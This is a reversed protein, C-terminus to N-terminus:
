PIVCLRSTGNTRGNAILSLQYYGALNTTPILYTADANGINQQWITRGLADTLVLAGTPAGQTRVLIPTGAQALSPSVHWSSADTITVANVADTTKFNRKPSLPTCFFHSNVAQVRWYYNKNQILNTLTFTTDTLWQETVLFGFASSPSTQLIYHTAGEVSAWALTVYDYPTQELDDPALLTTPNTSVPPPVEQNYLFDIKETLLNARMAAIQQDSFRDSCADLSYSMFLTGDSNFPQGAPDIQTVTSESNAANCQWRYSLYDAKTDSFGDAAYTSNSGDLLEVVMTDYIITDPNFIPVSQFFTYATTIITDPAPSGVNYDNQEWGYFPHPLRLNHGIEHAWTHDGPAACGNSVAVSAYPLNYGCNGAPDAVFYSNITNEVDNELMMAYGEMVTAHDNYAQNGIKHPDGELFFQIKAPAYDLNLRCLAASMSTYPFLGLTDDNGVLHVTLPVYLITDEMKNYTEPTRQYTRLWPDHAPMVGCPKLDQKTVQAQLVGIGLFAFAFLFPRM